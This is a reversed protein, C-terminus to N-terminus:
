VGRRKRYIKIGVMLAVALAILGVGFYLADFNKCVVLFVIAFLFLTALENWIRLGMSSMGYYGKQIDNYIIHCAFHYFYLLVVFGLKAHM